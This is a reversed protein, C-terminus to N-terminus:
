PLVQPNPAAMGSGARVMADYRRQQEAEPLALWAAEHRAAARATEDARPAEGSPQMRSQIM